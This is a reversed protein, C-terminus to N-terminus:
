LRRSCGSRPHAYAAHAPFHVDIVDAPSQRIQRAFVRVRKPWSLGSPVAGEETGDDIWIVSSTTGLVDQARVLESLYRNLGGIRWQPSELGVHVIKPSTM